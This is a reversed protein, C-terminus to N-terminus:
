WSQVFEWGPSMKTTTHGQSSECVCVSVCVCVATSGEVPAMVGNASQGAAHPCSWAVTCGAILWYAAGSPGGTKNGREAVCVYM